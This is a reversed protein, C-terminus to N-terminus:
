NILAYLLSGVLCLALLPVLFYTFLAAVVAVVLLFACIKVLGFGLRVFLWLSFLILLLALM